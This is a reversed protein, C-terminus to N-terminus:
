FRMIPRSAVIVRVEAAKLNQLPYAVCHGSLFDHDDLILVELKRGECAAKLRSPEFDGGSAVAQGGNAGGALLLGVEDEEIETERGAVTEDDQL